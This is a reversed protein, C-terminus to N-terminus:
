EGAGVQVGGALLQEGQQPEKKMMLGLRPEDHNITGATTGTTQTITSRWCSDALVSGYEALLSWWLHPMEIVDITLDLNHIQSEVASDNNFAKSQVSM